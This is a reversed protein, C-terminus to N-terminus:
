YTQSFRQPTPVGSFSFFALAVTAALATLLVPGLAPAPHAELIGEREAEQPATGDTTRGGLWRRVLWIGGAIVATLVVVDWWGFPVRVLASLVGATGVVAVSLPAALGALPLGRMGGAWALLAGPALLVIAAALAPLVVTWWSM